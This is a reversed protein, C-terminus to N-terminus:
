PLEGRHEALLRQWEMKFWPTYREGKLDTALEQTVAEVSLWKLAAIEMPHSRPAADSKGVYVSCLEHESGAPGFAAHYEFKFLYELATKMGLEQELRRVTATAMDEGARPHSCCTNSWYLPWLRKEASRQQLLLEGKGNFIFISFARHLVGKGDHAAAKSVTGLERDDSDVLILEESESSVAEV